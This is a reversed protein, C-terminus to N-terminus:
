QLTVDIFLLKFLSCSFSMRHEYRFIASKSFRHIRQITSRSNKNQSVPYVHFQSSLAQAILLRDCRSARFCETSPHTRDTDDQKKIRTPRHSTLKEKNYLKTYDWLLGLSIPYDKRNPREGDIMVIVWLRRRRSCEIGNTVIQPCCCHMNFSSFLSSFIFAFILSVSLSFPFVISDQAYKSDSLCLNPHRHPHSLLVSPM